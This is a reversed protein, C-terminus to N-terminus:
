LTLCLQVVSCSCFGSHLEPLLQLPELVDGPVSVPWALLPLSLDKGQVEPLPMAMTVSQNQM